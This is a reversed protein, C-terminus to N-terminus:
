ATSSLFSTNVYLPVYMKRVIALVNKEPEDSYLSRYTPVPLRSDVLDQSQNKRTLNCLYDMSYKVSSFQCSDVLENLFGFMRVSQVYRTTLILNPICDALTMQIM